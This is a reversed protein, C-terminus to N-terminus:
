QLGRHYIPVGNQGHAPPYITTGASPIQYYQPQVQQPNYYQPHNYSPLEKPPYYNMGSQQFPVSQNSLRQPPRYNQVQFPELEMIQPEYESLARYIESSKKRDQPNLAVM